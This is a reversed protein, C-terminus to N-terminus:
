TQQPTALRRTADIRLRAAAHHMAELLMAHHQRARSKAAGGDSVTSKKNSYACIPRDRIAHIPQAIASHETSLLPVGMFRIAFSSALASTSV